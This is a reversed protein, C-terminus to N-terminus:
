RSPYEAFWRCDTRMGQEAEGGNFPTAETFLVGGCNCFNRRLCSLEDAYYVTTNLNAKCAWWSPDSSNDCRGGTGTCLNCIPEDYRVCGGSTSGGGAVCAKFYFALRCDSDCGASATRVPSWFLDCAAGGLLVAVAIVVHTKM